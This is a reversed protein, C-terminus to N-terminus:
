ITHYSSNGLGKMGKIFGVGGQVGTAVKKLKGDRGMGQGEDKSRKSMLLGMSWAREDTIFNM